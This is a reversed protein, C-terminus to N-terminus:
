CALGHESGCYIVLLGVEENCIVTAHEISSQILSDLAKVAGEKVAPTTTVSHLQELLPPLAGPLPPCLPFRADSSVFLLNLHPSADLKNM